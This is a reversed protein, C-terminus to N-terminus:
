FERTVDCGAKKLISAICDGICRRANGYSASGHSQASVFEVNVRVNQWTWSM